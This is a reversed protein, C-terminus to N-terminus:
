HLLKKEDLNIKKTLIPKINFEERRNYFYTSDCRIGYKEYYAKIIGTSDTRVTTKEYHGGWEGCEDYHSEITLYLTENKPNFKGLSVPDIFKSTISVKTSDNVQANTLTITLIFIILLKNNM